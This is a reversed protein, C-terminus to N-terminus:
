GKRKVQVGFVSDVDGAKHYVQWFQDLLEPEEELDIDILFVYDGRSVQLGTMIAKHHGFNRSLDVVIVRDGEEQLQLAKQLANDPSGDNVLIIEYEGTIAKLVSSIRAHFEEIYKESYYLSAVVSLKM